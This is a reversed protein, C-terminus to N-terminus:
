RVLARIPRFRIANLAHEEFLTEDSVVKGAQLTLLSSGLIRARVGAEHGFLRWLIALRDGDSEVKDFYLTADPLRSILRMIWRKATDRDGASGNPGSWVADDSYLGALEDFRRGNWIRHLTDLIPQCPGELTAIPGAAYQGLGSRLEGLPPQAPWLEGLASANTIPDRGPADSVLVERAILDGECTLWRHQAFAGGDNLELALVVASNTFSAATASSLEPSVALRLDDAIIADRGIVEGLSHERRARGLFQRELGGFAGRNLAAELAKAYSV